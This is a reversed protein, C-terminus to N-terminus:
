GTRERSRVDLRVRARRCTQRGDDNDDVDDVNVEVLDWTPATGRWGIGYITWVIGMLFMWGFLSVLSILM